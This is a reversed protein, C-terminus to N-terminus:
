QQDDQARTEDLFQVLNTLLSKAADENDDATGSLIEVLRYTFAM